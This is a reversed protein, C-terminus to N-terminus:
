VPLDKRLEVCAIHDSAVRGTLNSGMNVYYRTFLRMDNRTNMIITRLSLDRARNEAMALMLNTHEAADGYKPIVDDDSSDPVYLYEIKLNLADVSYNLAGILIARRSDNDITFMAANKWVRVMYTKKRTYEGVMIKNKYLPFQSVYPSNSLVHRPSAFVAVKNFHM